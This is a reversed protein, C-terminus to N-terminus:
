ITANTEYPKELAFYTQPPAGSIGNPMLAVKDLAAAVPPDLRLERQERQCGATCVAATSIFVLFARMTAIAASFRSEIFGAEGYLEM